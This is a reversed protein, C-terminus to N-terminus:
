TNNEYLTKYPLSCIIAFLLAISSFGFALVGVFAPIQIPDYGGEVAYGHAFRVSVVTVTLPVVAIGAGALVRQRLAPASIAVIVSTVGYGLVLHPTLIFREVIGRDDFSQAPYVSFLEVGIIAIIAVGATGVLFRFPIQKSQTLQRKGGIAIGFCLYVIGVSFTNFFQLLSNVVDFGSLEAFIPLSSFMIGSVILGFEIRKGYNWMVYKRIINARYTKHTSTVDPLEKACIRQLCNAAGMREM